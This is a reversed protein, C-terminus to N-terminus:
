QHQWRSFILLISQLCCLLHCGMLTVSQKKCFLFSLLYVCCSVGMMPAVMKFINFSNVTFLVVCPLGHTDCKAEQLFSILTFLRLLKYGHNTGGDLWQNHGIRKFFKFFFFFYSRDSKKSLDSWGVSFAIRELGLTTFSKRDYNVEPCLLSAHKVGPFM